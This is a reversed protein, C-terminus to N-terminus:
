DEIKVTSEVMMESQEYKLRNNMNEELKIEEQLSVNSDNVKNIQPNIFLLTFAFVLLACFGFTRIEYDLKTKLKKKTIM